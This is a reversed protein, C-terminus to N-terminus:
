MMNEEEQLNKTFNDLKGKWDGSINEVMKKKNYRSIVRHM